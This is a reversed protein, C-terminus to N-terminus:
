TIATFIYVLLPGIANQQLEASLGREVHSDLEEVATLWALKAVVM